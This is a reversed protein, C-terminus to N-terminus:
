CPIETTKVPTVDHHLLLLKLGSGTLYAEDSPSPARGLSPEERDYRAYALLGSIAANYISIAFRLPIDIVDYEDWTGTETYNRKVGSGTTTTNLHLSIASCIILVSPQELTYKRKFKVHFYYLYM